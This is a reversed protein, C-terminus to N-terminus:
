EVDFVPRTMDHETLQCGATASCLMEQVYSVKVYVRRINELAKHKVLKQV